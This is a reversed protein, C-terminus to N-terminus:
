EGELEFIEPETGLQESLKEMEWIGDVMQIHTNRINMGDVLESFSVPRLVAKALAEGNGQIPAPLRNTGAQRYQFMGALGMRLKPRIHCLKTSYKWLPLAKGSEPMSAETRKLIALRLETSDTTRVRFIPQSNSSVGKYGVLIHHGVRPYNLYISRFYHSVLPLCIYTDYDTFHIIRRMVDDPLSSRTNRPPIPAPALWPVKTNTFTPSLLHMLLLIGDKLEKGDHLDLVPSHRVESGDVTVAVIHWGSMIIGVGNGQDHSQVYNALQVVKYAMYVPEDVRPCFTILCGHFWYFRRMATEYELYRHDGSHLAQMKDKDPHDIDFVYMKNGQTPADIPPCLLNSAAAANSARWCFMGIKPWICSYHCLALEDSYDYVLTKILIASLHQSVSLTDWSLSTWESQPVVIAQLAEYQSQAEPADHYLRPWLDISTLCDAPIQPLDPSHEHNPGELYDVLALESGSARVPPMNDFRFHLVGNVTFVRNDFDIIYTWKIWRDGLSWDPETCTYKHGPWGCEGKLMIAMRTIWKEWETPDQPISASIERGRVRPNADQELCKLYYKGEYRWAMYSRIEM